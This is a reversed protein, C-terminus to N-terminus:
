KTEAPKSESTNANANANANGNGGGGGNGKGGGKGRGSRRGRSSCNGGSGGQGENSKGGRNANTNTNADAPASPPKPESGSGGGRGKGRSKEAGPNAKRELVVVQSQAVTVPSASIAKQLGHPEAFDVYGFGKKKDIEVKVVKGFPSFATELLPETVGQSPNAHKLFAQTATPMPTPPTAASPQKGRGSKPGRPTSKPQAPTSSESKQPTPTESPQPTNSRKANADQAANAKPSKTPTDKKSTEPATGQDTRTEGDGSTGRGGRRRNSSPALGLDRQLIKGVAAANGRERKREPAAPPTSDKFSNQATSTKAAQKSALNAAQKNAAKVAEKTAKDNRSKKEAKEASAPSAEKDPRQLLKKSQVKESKSERETRRSSKNSVEKAKNAKKEKIYQVLPTTTIVEKKDEGETSDVPGSKTIPLTLSELFQIFEPDQDITGQRADKRVRSGPIKAYPSFELNPPGLLIPDNATNRADLFSTSRIKDSLLGIQDHSVVYLYARSPRSPKAPDKSVKGPKYQSWSVKGGGVKWDAGLATEFEEQTLGPPLRRVILKLRPAAPKPTKKAAHAHKQTASAPIQLVGGSSKSLIQTM